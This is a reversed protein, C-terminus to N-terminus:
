VSSDFLVLQSKRQPSSKKAQLRVGLGVLRTPKLHLGWCEEMLKLYVEFTPLGSIATEHTSSKFDSFKLKVFATKIKDPELRAKNWREVWEEYIEQLCQEIERFTQLDERFTEEVSLSKRESHPEVERHDEGRCLFYLSGGWSGFRNELDELSLKQLDGCTELGLSHMKKATVKGVGFIKEVPLDQVFAKVQHPAITFQGNPKNREGAVKALFKNPAIGASCTLGTEAEVRKRIERAIHTAIGDCHPSASVDLFAEDLSLPEVLETYDLFIRRIQKSAAKYKTFDPYIIHLGPCLKLAARSSMASKVGFKRAEYNATAVVGRGEPSGGVAIPQGKLHPRDRMEIAAYFCDMDIHIIKRM